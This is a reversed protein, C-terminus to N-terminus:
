LQRIMPILNSLQTNNNANCSAVMNPIAAATLV